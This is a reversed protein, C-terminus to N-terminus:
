LMRFRCVSTKLRRTKRYRRFESDSSLREFPSKRLLARRRFEEFISLFNRLWSRFRSIKEEGRTESSAFNTVTANFNRSPFDDGRSGSGAAGFRPAQFRFDPTGSPSRFDSPSLRRTQFDAIRNAAGPTALVQRSGELFNSDRFAVFPDRFKRCSAASPESIRGRRVDPRRFETRLYEVSVLKEEMEFTFGREIVERFQSIRQNESCSRRITEALLIQFRTPRPETEFALGRWIKRRFQM